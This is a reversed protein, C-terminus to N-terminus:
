IGTDDENVMFLLLERFRELVRDLRIIVLRLRRSM